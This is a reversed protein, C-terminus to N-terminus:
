DASESTNSRLRQIRQGPVSAVGPASATSTAGDDQRATLRASLHARVLKGVATPPLLGCGQRTSRSAVEYVTTGRPPVVVHGDERLLSVNRQVRPSEWMNENMIPFILLPEAHSLATTSGRALM